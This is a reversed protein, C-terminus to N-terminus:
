QRTLTVNSGSETLAMVIDGFSIQTQGTILPKSPDLGLRGWAEALRVAVAAGTAHNWVAAAIASPDGGGTAVTIAQVPQQYNIRVVFNGNPNVFPDGGGDVLLVGGTVNLTHNTEQPKIRWGNVLFAYLPISTGAGLDIPDGGVPRFMDPWQANGALVFDKWRSYIDMVDLAVTGASLVALKNAGDFAISM